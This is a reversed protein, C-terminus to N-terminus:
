PSVTCVYVHQGQLVRLLFASVEVLERQSFAIYVFNIYTVTLCLLAECILNSQM